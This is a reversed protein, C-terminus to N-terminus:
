TPRTYKLFSPFGPKTFYIYFTITIIILTEKLIVMHITPAPIIDAIIKKDTFVSSNIFTDKSLRAIM